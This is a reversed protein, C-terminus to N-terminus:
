TYMHLVHFVLPRQRCFTFHELEGDHVRISSHAAPADSTVREVYVGKITPRWKLDIGFKGSRPDREVVINQIFNGVRKEHQVIDLRLPQGLDKVNHIEKLLATWDDYRKGNLGIIEDGVRLKTASAAGSVTIGHVFHRGSNSAVSVGLQPRAASVAIAVSVMGPPSLEPPSAVPPPASHRSPPASSVRIENPIPPHPQPVPRAALPFSQTYGYGTVEDRKLAPYDLPVPRIIDLILREAAGISQIMQFARAANVQCRVVEGNISVIEDARFLLDQPLPNMVLIKPGSDFIKIKSREQYPINIGRVMIFKKQTNGTLKSSSKKRKKERKKGKLGISIRGSAANGNALDAANIPDASKMADEDDDEEQEEGASSYDSDKLAAADAKTDAAKKGVPEEFYQSYSTTQKRKRKGLVEEKEEEAEGVVRNFLLSCHHHPIIRGIPVVSHLFYFTERGWASKSRGSILTM